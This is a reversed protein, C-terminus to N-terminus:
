QKAGEQLNEQLCDIHNEMDDALYRGIEALGKTADESRDGIAVFLASLKNLTDLACDAIEQALEKAQEVDVTLAGFAETARLMRLIEKEDSTTLQTTM